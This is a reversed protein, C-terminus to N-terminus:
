FLLFFFYYARVTAVTVGTPTRRATAHLTVWRTASTASRAIADLTVDADVVMATEVTVAAMVHDMVDADVELVVVVVASVSAARQASEPLTAWM